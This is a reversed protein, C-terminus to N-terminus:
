FDNFILKYRMFDDADGFKDYLSRAPNKAQTHWYLRSWGWAKALEVLDELLLRGLGHGRYNQDVFLDELYCIPSSTWTGEHLVSVTFGVVATEFIALRDFIASKPDLIRQWTFNTVAEPIRAKYFSNYGSWLRRWDPEDSDHPDRAFTM